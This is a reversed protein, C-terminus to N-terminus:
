LLQNNAHRRLYRGPARDAVEAVGAAQEEASDALRGAVGGGGDASHM